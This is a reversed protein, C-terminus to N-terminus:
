KAKKARYYRLNLGYEGGIASASSNPIHSQDIHRILNVDKVSEPMPEFLLEVAMSRPPEIAVVLRGIPINNRVGVLHYRKKSKCDEIYSKQSINFWYLNGAPSLSITVITHSKQPDISVIEREYEENRKLLTMEQSSLYYGHGIKDIGTPAITANMDVQPTRKYPSIKLDERISDGRQLQTVELKPQGNGGVKLMYGIQGDPSEIYYYKPKDSTRTSATDNHGLDHEKRKKILEEENSQAQSSRDEKTNMRPTMDMKPALLGSTGGMSGVSGGMLPMSTGMSGTGMRMEQALAATCYLMATLLLVFYGKMIM